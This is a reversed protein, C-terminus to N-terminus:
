FASVLLVVAPDGVLALATSLKRKNGGSCQHSLFGRQLPQWPSLRQGGGGWHTGTPVVVGTLM